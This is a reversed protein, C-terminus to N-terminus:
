KGSISAGAVTYNKLASENVTIESEHAALYDNQAVALCYTYLNAFQDADTTNQYGADPLDLKKVFYIGTEDEVRKTEGVALERAANTIDAGFKQFDNPCIYYGNPYYLADVNEDYEKMLADFDEGAKIKGEITDALATKEAKKADDLVATVANGTAPDYVINGDADKSYEFVNNVILIKVLSYNNKYYDDIAVDTVKKEGNVFLHEYAADYKAELVKIEKFRAYDVGYVALKENLTKEDGYAALYDEAQKEAAAIEEDTLSLGQEDFYSLLLLRVKIDDTIIKKLHSEYTEGNGLEQAWYEPTDDAVTVFYSKMTSLWYKYMYGKIEKGNFSMVTEDYNPGSCSVLALAALLAALLLALIKRTKM